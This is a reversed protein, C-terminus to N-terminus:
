FPIYDDQDDVSIKKTSTATATPFNGATATTQSREKVEALRVDREKLKEQLEELTISGETLELPNTMGSIEWSRFTRTTPKVEFSGFMVDSDDEEKEVEVTTSILNGSIRGFYPETASIDLRDIAKMGNPNSLSFTAPMVDGRWNFVFGKLSKYESGDLSEQDTVNNILVDCDFTAKGNTAENAPIFHLYIGGRIRQTSVLEGQQNYWDNVEIDGTLRVRLADKGADQYTAGDMIKELNEYTPNKQGAMKGSAITPTVYTYYVRVVNSADDDTAISIDGRIYEQGPHKSQEGTTRKELNHSFVYGRVETVNQMRQKM